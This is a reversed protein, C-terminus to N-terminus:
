ECGYQQKKDKEEKSLNQYRERAKKQHDKKIIENIYLQHIKLCNQIHLFISFFNDASM